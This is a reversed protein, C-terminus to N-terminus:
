GHPLSWVLRFRPAVRDGRDAEVDKQVDRAEELRPRLGLPGALGAADLDVALGGLRVAQHV